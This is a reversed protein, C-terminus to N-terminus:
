LPAGPMVSGVEVVGVCVTMGEDLGHIRIKDFSTYTRLYLSNLGSTVRTEVSIDDIDIRVATSHSALYGIRMWSPDSPAESTLPILRDRERVSWGCDGDPGPASRAAPAIMAHRVDGQDTVVALKGSQDPFRAEPAILPAVTSLRNDSGTLVNLISTPVPRDAFDQAGIRDLDTRLQAVYAKSTNSREWLHVWTVWNIVGGIVVLALAIRAWPIMQESSLVPPASRPSSSEMSGAVPLFALGVALVAVYLADTQLRYAAAIDIGFVGARTTGILAVLVCVYSAILLWARGSRRRLLMSTVVVTCIVLWSLAVQWTPPDAWAGGPKASWGGPGGTIGTAFTRLAMLDFLSWWRSTTGAPPQVVQTSVYATYGISVIGLLLGARWYRTIARHFRQSVSGETFYALMLFVLVPLVLLSKQFFLLGWIVAGATALLWPLRGTRLYHVWSGIAAFFSIAIATQNVSSIWWMFAQASMASTAYVLYLLLIAWRRGFMVLLSWLAFSSAMLQLALSVTAAFTWSLGGASAVWFYIARTGPMFHGNDPRLLYELTFRSRVADTLLVYDDAYFYGHTIAWTRFALHLAILAVGALIVPHQARSRWRARRVPTELGADDERTQATVRPIM